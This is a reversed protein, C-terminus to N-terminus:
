LEYIILLGCFKSFDGDIIQSTTCLVFSQHLNRLIKHGEWFLLHVQIWWGHRWYSFGCAKCMFIHQYWYELPITNIWYKTCIEECWIQLNHLNSRWCYLWSQLGLYISLYRTNTLAKSIIELYMFNFSAILPWIVEFRRKPTKLKRWLHIDVQRKM